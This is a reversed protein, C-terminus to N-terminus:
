IPPPTHGEDYDEDDSEDEDEDDGKMSRTLESETKRSSGTSIEGTQILLKCLKM